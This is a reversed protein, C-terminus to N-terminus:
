LLLYEIIDKQKTIWGREIAIPIATLGFGVAAISSPSDVTSRDKILGNEPNAENWFYQFTKKRFKM